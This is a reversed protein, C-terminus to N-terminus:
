AEVFIGNQSQNFEDILKQLAEQLIGGFSHWAVVHTRGRYERPTSGIVQTYTGGGCGALAGAGVGGLTALFGRRSWRSMDNGTM